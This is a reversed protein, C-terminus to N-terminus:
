RGALEEVAIRGIGGNMDLEVRDTATDYGPSVYWDGQRTYGSPIQTNGLGENIRMRVAMGEPVRM